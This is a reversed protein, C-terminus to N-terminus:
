QGRPAEGAAGAPCARGHGTRASNRRGIPRGNDHRKQMASPVGGHFGQRFVTWCNNSNRTCGLIPPPMRPCTVRSLHFEHPNGIPLWSAPTYATFPPWPSGTALEGPWVVATPGFDDPIPAHSGSLLRPCHVSATSTPSCHSIMVRVARVQQGPLGKRHRDM